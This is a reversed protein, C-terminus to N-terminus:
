GEPPAEPLAEELEVEEHLGDNVIFVVETEVEDDEPKSIVGLLVRAGAPPMDLPAGMELDITGDAPSTIDIGFSYAGNPVELASPAATGQALNTLVPAAPDDLNYVDVPGQVLFSAHFVRFAINGAAPDAEEQQIPLAAYVNPDRGTQIAAITWTEGEGLAFGNVEIVAADIGAGAPAVAIDYSGAPLDTIMTNDEFTFGPLFVEGDVFVDVQEADPALHWVRLAGTPGNGGDGNGDDGCGATVGAVLVGLSATRLLWTLTHHGLM